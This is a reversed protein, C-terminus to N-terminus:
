CFRIMMYPDTVQDSKKKERMNKAEAWVEQVLANRILLCYFLLISALHLLFFSWSEDVCM